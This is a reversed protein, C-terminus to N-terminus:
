MISCFSNCAPGCQYVDDGGGLNQIIRPARGRYGTAGGEGGMRVILQVRSPGASPPALDAEEWPEDLLDELNTYRDLELRSLDVAREENVKSLSSCPEEKIVRFREASAVLDPPVSIGRWVGARREDGAEEKARDNVTNQRDIGNEKVMKEKEALKDKKDSSFFIKPTFTNRDDSHEHTDVKNIVQSSPPSSAQTYNTPLFTDQSRPSDSADTTNDEDDSLEAGLNYYVQCPPRFSTMRSGEPDDTSQHRTSTNGEEKEM